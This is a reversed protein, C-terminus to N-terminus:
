STAADPRAAFKPPEHVTVPPLTGTFREIEVMAHQGSCGQSLTSAPRDATLVNPNGHVCLPGM